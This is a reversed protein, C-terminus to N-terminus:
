QIPFGIKFCINNEELECISLYGQQEAIQRVISLGLGTGSLAQNRSAEGVYFPQWIKEIDLNNQDTKNSIHFWIIQDEQFLKVEVFSSSAYKAGNSRDRICM